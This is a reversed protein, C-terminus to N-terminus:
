LDDWFDLDIDFLKLLEKSVKLIPILAKSFGPIDPKDRDLKEILVKKDTASLNSNEIRDILTQIEHM